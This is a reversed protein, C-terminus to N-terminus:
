KKSYLYFGTVTNTSKSVSTVTVTVRCIVGQPTNTIVFNSTSVSTTKTDNYFDTASGDERASVEVKVGQPPMKSTVTVALPFNPGPAAVESQGGIAPTSSIVLNEEAPPETTKSGGGCSPLILISVGAAFFLFVLARKM